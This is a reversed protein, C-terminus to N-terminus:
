WRSAARHPEKEMWEDKKKKEKLVKASVRKKRKKRTPRLYLHFLERITTDDLDSSLAELGRLGEELGASDSNLKGTERLLKEVGDLGSIDIEALGEVLVNHEGSSGGHVRTEGTTDLVVNAREVELLDQLSVSSGEANTRRKRECFLCFLLLFFFCLNQGM